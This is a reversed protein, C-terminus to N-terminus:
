GYRVLTTVTAFIADVMIIFFVSVVVTRTTASGVSSADGRTRMGLHSGAFGIIWAFVISKV